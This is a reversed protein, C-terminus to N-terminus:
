EDEDETLGYYSYGGGHIWFLAARSRTTNM